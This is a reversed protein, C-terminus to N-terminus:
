GQRVVLAELPSVGGNHWSADPSQLEGPHACRSVGLEALAPALSWASEGALAAGQLRGRWPALIEPLRDLAPLPHVRVTRVGPSPRLETRPEVVVTGRRLELEPQYLGRMVAETQLQRVAAVDGPDVEGLPWERARRDLASALRDALDAARKEGGEMYVAQVSLCGRQDFLAVDTALGSAVSELDAGAGVAAVSIKPGYAVLKGGARSELDRMTEGGGYAIVASAGELVPAELERDGGPWTVAALSRRLRPERRCLVALFAPAFLPEASPSKLLVPRGLAVAPLLPQVALAPLNSALFVVVPGGGRPMGAAAEFVATAPAGSVGGLVAELGAAVGAPSLRTLRALPPDLARRVKSEPDRLEAVAATWASALEGADLEPTGANALAAMLFGLSEPSWAAARWECGHRRRLSRGTPEVAPPLFADELM